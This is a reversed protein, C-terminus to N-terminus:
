KSSHTRDGTPPAMGCATGADSSASVATGGPAFPDNSAATDKQVCVFVDSTKIIWGAHVFM